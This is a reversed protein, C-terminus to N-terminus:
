KGNGNKSIAARVGVGFLFMSLASIAPIWHEPVWGYGYALATASAFITGWLTKSKAWNM